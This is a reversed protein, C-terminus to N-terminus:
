FGMWINMNMNIYVQKPINSGGSARANPVWPNNQFIRGAPPVHMPFGHTTKPCGIGDMYEYEYKCICINM